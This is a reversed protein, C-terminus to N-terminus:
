PSPILEAHVRKRADCEAEAGRQRQARGQGRLRVDVFQRRGHHAVQVETICKEIVVLALIELRDGTQQGVPLPAAHWVVVGLGVQQETAQIERQAQV